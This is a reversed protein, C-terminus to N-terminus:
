ARPFPPPPMQPPLWNEEPAPVVKWEAFALVYLLILTGFHVINLLSLWGSFGAKKCIFWFPLVVIALGVVGFILMGALFAPVMRKIAEPDPQNQLLFAVFHM